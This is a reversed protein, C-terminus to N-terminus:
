VFMRASVKVIGQVYNGDRTLQVSPEGNDEGCLQDVTDIVAEFRDQGLQITVPSGELNALFDYEAKPAFPRTVEDRGVYAERFDLAMEVMRGRRPIPLGRLNWRLLKPSTGDNNKTFTFRLQLDTCQPTDASANVLSIRTLGNTTVSTQAVASGGDEFTHIAISGGTGINSAVVEVYRFFKTDPVGLTVRSTV